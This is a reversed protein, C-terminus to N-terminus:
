GRPPAKALVPASPPRYTLALNLLIALPWMIYLSELINTVLAMIIIYGFISPSTPDLRTTPYRLGGIISQAIYILVLALASLGFAGILFILTSDTVVYDRATLVRRAITIASNSYMSPSVGFLWDVSTDFRAFAVKWFDVRVFPNDAFDRGSVEKSSLATILYYLVIPMFLFSGIYAPRKLSGLKPIIAGGLLLVIAIISLRSGTLVIAVFACLVVFDVRRTTLFYILMYLSLIQGFSNPNEFTGIVKPGWFTSGYVPPLFNIQYIAIMFQFLIFAAVIKSLIDRNPTTAAPNSLMIPFLPLYLAYRLSFYQHMPVGGQAIARYICWFCYIVLFILNLYMLSERRTIKARTFYYIYFGLLIVEKIYRVATNKIQQDYWVGRAVTLASELQSFAIAITFLAFMLACVNRMQTVASRNELYGPM